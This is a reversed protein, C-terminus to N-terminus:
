FECLRKWLMIAMMVALMKGMVVALMESVVIALVAAMMVALVIWAGLWMKMYVGEFEWTFDTEWRGEFFCCTSYYHFYSWHTTYVQVVNSCETDSSLNAQYRYLISHNMPDSVLWELLLVFVLWQVDSQVKNLKYQIGGLYMCRIRCGSM